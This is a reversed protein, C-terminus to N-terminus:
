ISTDDCFSKIKVSRVHIDLKAQVLIRQILFYLILLFMLGKFIINVIYSNPHIEICRLVIM